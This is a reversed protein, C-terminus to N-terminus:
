RREAAKIKMELEQIQAEAKEIREIREKYEKDNIKRAKKDKELKERALKVREKAEAVRGKSDRITNQLENQKIERNQRAEAARQQGFERGSLDGKDKGYANGKGKNGPKDAPKKDTKTPKTQEQPKDAVPKRQDQQPTEPAEVAPKESIGQETRSPTRSEPKQQEQPKRGKDVETQRQPKEETKKGQAMIHGSFLILAAILCASAWQFYSKKM